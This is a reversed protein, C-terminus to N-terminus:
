NRQEDELEPTLEQVYSTDYGEEGPLINNKDGIFVQMYRTMGANMAGLMRTKAVEGMVQESAVARM